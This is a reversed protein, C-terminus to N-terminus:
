PTVLHQQREGLASCYTVPILRPHAPGLLEFFNRQAAEHCSPELACRGVDNWPASPESPPVFSTRRRRSLDGRKRLDKGLLLVQMSAEVVLTSSLETERGTPEGWTHWPGGETTFSRTRVWSCTTCTWTWKWRPNLRTQMGSRASGTHKGSTRRSILKM